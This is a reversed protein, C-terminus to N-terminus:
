KLTMLLSAPRVHPVVSGTANMQTRLISLDEGGRATGAVARHVCSDYVCKKKRRSLTMVAMAMLM